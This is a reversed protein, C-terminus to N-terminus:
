AAEAALRAAGIAGAQSGLQAPVVQVRRRRDGGIGVRHTWAEIGRVLPEGAFVPIGEGIAWVDGTVRVRPLYEDFFGPGSGALAPVSRLVAV